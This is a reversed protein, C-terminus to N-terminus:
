QPLASFGMFKCGHFLQSQNGDPQQQESQRQLAQSCERRRCAACIGRCHVAHVVALLAMMVSWCRMVMARIVRLVIVALRGILGVAMGAAM